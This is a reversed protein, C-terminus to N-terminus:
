ERDRASMGDPPLPARFAGADERASWAGRLQGLHKARRRPSLLNHPMLLGSVANAFTRLWPMPRGHKTLAHIRSRAMHYGKFAAVDPSRGSSHGAMHHVEADPVFWVPGCERRLRVSLDDDEHYLFIAPDFGGIAEHASRRVFIAGGLLVIVPAESEPPGHRLWERRPVLISRRKFETRGGPKVIRPNAAPVDPHSDMFAVLAEICGPALRADPNVFFLFETEALEAGANCGRGFGHNSDLRVLRAGHRAAIEATADSGGNDVVITAVGAPVSELLGPLVSASNYSVTVVTVRAGAQQSPPMM